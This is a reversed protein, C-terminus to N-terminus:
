RNVVKADGDAIMGDIAEKRILLLCDGDDYEGTWQVYTSWGDESLMDAVQSDCASAVEEVGFLDIAIERLRRAHGTRTYHIM